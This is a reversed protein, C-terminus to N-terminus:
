KIHIYELHNHKMQFKLAKFREKTKLVADNHSQGDLGCLDCDDRAGSNGGGRGHDGGRAGDHCGSGDGGAREDLDDEVHVSRIYTM